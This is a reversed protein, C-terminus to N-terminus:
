VSVHLHFQLKSSRRDLLVDRAGDITTTKALDRLRLGRAHLLNVGPVGGDSTFRWVKDPHIGHSPTYSSIITLPITTTSTGTNCTM